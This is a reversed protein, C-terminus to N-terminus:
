EINRLDIGPINVFLQCLFYGVHIQFALREGINNFLPQFPAKEVVPSFLQVHATSDSAFPSCIWHVEIFHHSLQLKLTYTSLSLGRFCHCRSFIHNKLQFPKRENLEPWPAGSMPHLLATCCYASYWTANENPFPAEAYRYRHRYLSLPQSPNTLWNNTRYFLLMTWSHECPSFNAFNSRNEWSWGYHSGNKGSEPPSFASYVSPCLCAETCTAGGFPM